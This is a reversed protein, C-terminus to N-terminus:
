TRWGARRSTRRRSGSRASGQARKVRVASRETLLSRRDGESTVGRSRAARHHLVHRRGGCRLRSTREHSWPSRLAVTPCSGLARGMAHGARVDQHASRGRSTVSEAHITRPKQMVKLRRANRGLKRARSRLLRTAVSTLSCNRGIGRCKKADKTHGPYRQLCQEM